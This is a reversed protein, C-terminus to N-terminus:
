LHAHCVCAFPMYFGAPLCRESFFRQTGSVRGSSVCENWLLIHCAKFIFYSTPVEKQKLSTFFHKVILSPEALHLLRSFLHFSITWIGGPLLHCLWCQSGLKTLDPWHFSALPRRPPSPATACVCSKFLGSLKPMELELQRPEIIISHTWFTWPSAWKARSRVPSSTRKAKVIAPHEHQHLIFVTQLM